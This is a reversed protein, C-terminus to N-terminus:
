ESEEIIITGPDVLHLEKEAILRISEPTGINQIQQSLATNESELRAVEEQLALLRTNAELQRLHLSILTVTSLVIATTVIIKALPHACHYQTQLKKM